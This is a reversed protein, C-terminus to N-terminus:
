EEVDLIPQPLTTRIRHVHMAHLDTVYLRHGRGRDRSEERHGGLTHAGERCEMRDLSALFLLFSSYPRCPDMHGPVSQIFRVRPPDAPADEPRNYPLRIIVRVAPPSPM